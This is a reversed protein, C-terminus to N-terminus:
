LRLCLCLIKLYPYFMKFKLLESQTLTLRSGIILHFPNFLIMTCLICLMCKKLSWMTEHKHNIFCCCYYYHLAWSYLKKKRWIIITKGLFLFDIMGKNSLFHGFVCKKFPNQVFKKFCRFPRLYLEHVM